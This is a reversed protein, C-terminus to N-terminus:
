LVSPDGGNQEEALQQSVVMKQFDLRNTLYYSEEHKVDRANTLLQIGDAPYM